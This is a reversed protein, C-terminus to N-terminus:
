SQMQASLAMVRKSKAQKLLSGAEPYGSAKLM